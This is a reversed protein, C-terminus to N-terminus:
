TGNGVTAPMVGLRPGTVPPVATAILPVCNVPAVATLNPVLTAALKVTFDAFEIVAITGGVVITPGTSTVTVVAPPPVLRSDPASLYVNPGLMLAILGFLPGVVPPVLTVIM